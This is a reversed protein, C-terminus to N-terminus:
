KCPLFPSASVCFLSTCVTPSSSSSGSLRKLRTRSQAVGYVAAWWAGGDRPNELCSCQLPNGNGEGTCSLPEETWPIKWALTSSHPAIAKEPPLLSHSLNLSYCYWMYIVMRLISLWHSDATHCLSSVGTSRSLRSPHSPTPLPLSTWPRPSVHIGIWTSTHCFGVCYLLAIIRWNFFFVVRGSFPAQGTLQWTLWITLVGQPCPKIFHELDKKAGRTAPLSSAKVAVMVAPSNPKLTVYIRWHFCM